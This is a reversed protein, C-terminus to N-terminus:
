RTPVAALVDLIAGAVVDAAVELIDEHGAGAAFIQHSQSTLGVLDTQLAAQLPEFVAPDWGTPWQGRDAVTHTVIILPVDPMKPAARAEEFSALIDVSEHNPGALEEKDRAILDSTLHAWYTTAEDANNSDVLVMGVVQSPYTGAFLQSILGGWSYGVIIYPGPIKANTLLGQLDAVSDAATRLGEVVDSNKTNARSYDCVRTHEAVLRFVDTWDRTDGGLGHELIVTPRGEGQCAYFLSHGGVDVKGNVNTSAVSPASAPTAAHSPNQAGGCAAVLLATAVFGALGRPQMWADELIGAYARRTVEATAGITM